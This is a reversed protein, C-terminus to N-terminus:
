KAAVDAGSLFTKYSHCRTDIDYFFKGKNSVILGLLSSHKCRAFVKWDLRDNPPFVLLNGLFSADSLYELQTPEPRAM